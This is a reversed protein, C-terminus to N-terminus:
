RSCSELPEALRRALARATPAPSPPVEENSRSQVVSASVLQPRRGRPAGTQKTEQSGGAPQHKTPLKSTPTAGRLPTREVSHMGLPSAGSRRIAPVLQLRRGRPAGTQKTEQSGGAPQHMTPLKSTPTAGRLPTREVSCVWHRLARGGSQTGFWLFDRICGGRADTRRSAYGIAFRGVEPNRVSGSSTEFTRAGM